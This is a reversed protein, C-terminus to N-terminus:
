NEKRYKDQGRDYAEMHEQCEQSYHLRGCWVCILDGYKEKIPDTESPGRNVANTILELVAETIDGEPMNLDRKLRSKFEPENNKYDQNMM